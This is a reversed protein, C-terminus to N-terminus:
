EPFGQSVDECPAEGPRIVLPEADKVEDWGCEMLDIRITGPAGWRGFIIGAQVTDTSHPAIEKKIRTDVRITVPLNTENRVRLTATACENAAFLAVWVVAILAVVSVVVLKFLRESSM